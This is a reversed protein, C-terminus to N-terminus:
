QECCSIVAYGHIEKIMNFKSLYDQTYVRM